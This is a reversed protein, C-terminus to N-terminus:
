VADSLIYIGARGMWVSQIDGAGQKPVGSVAFHMGSGGLASVEFLFGGWLAGAYVSVNKREM